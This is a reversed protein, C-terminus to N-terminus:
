KFVGKICRDLVFNWDISSNYISGKKFKYDKEVKFIGVSRYGKSLFHNYYKIMNDESTYFLWPLSDPEGYAIYYDFEM